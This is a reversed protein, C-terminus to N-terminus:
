LANQAQTKGLLCQGSNWKHGNMTASATNKEGMNAADFIVDVGLPFVSSCFPSAPFAPFGVACFGRAAADAARRTFEAGGGPCVASFWSM